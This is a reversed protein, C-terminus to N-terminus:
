CDIESATFIFIRYLEIDDGMGWAGGSLAKLM